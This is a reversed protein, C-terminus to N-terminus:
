KGVIKVLFLVLHRAAPTLGVKNPLALVALNTKIKVERGYRM